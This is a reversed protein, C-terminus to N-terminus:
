QSNKDIYIFLCAFAALGAWLAALCWADIAGVGDYWIQGIWYAGIAGGVGFSLSAYLAQGKSRHEKPFAHHIYHISAAHALGFSFAHLLQAFGLLVPSSAAFAIVLWRVSTLLLSVFLLHKVGFRGLLSPAILFIGIEAVVGLAVYAGAAFPSYGLQELYLVFFVYFPGMSMQLLIASLLFWFTGKSLKLPTTKSHNTTVANSKSLPLAVCMLGAFLFMVLHLMAGAGFQQIAAGAGLSLCIYGVSGWSRIKGYQHTNKGLSELTVVELQALIANWFFTYTALSLATYVFGGPFYFSVFSICAAVAGLKILEVRWGTRDALWAWLNPALIRTGMLIAMLTGIEASDFGRSDLFLGIYPVLVGLIAFFFFYCASLWIRDSGSTQSASM